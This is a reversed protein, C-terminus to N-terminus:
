DMLHMYIPQEKQFWTRIRENFVELQVNQTHKADSSIGPTKWIISLKTSSIRKLSDLAHVLREGDTINPRRCDWNRYSEWLGLSIMVVDYEDSLRRNITTKNNNMVRSSSSSHDEKDDPPPLSLLELPELENLQHHCVNTLYDFKGSSPLLSPRGRAKRTMDTTSRCVHADLKLARFIPSSTDRLTCKPVQVVGKNINIEQNLDAISVVKEDKYVHHGANLIAWMTAWDQRCTSDGIWLVSHQTWIKYAADPDYVPIGQPPIWQNGVWSYNANDDIAAKIMDAAAGSSSSVGAGNDNYYAFLSQSSFSSIYNYDMTQWNSSGATLGGKGFLLSAASVVLVLLFLVNHGKGATSSPHHRSDKNPPKRKRGGVPM